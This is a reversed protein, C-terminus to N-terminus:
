IHSNSSGYCGGEIQNYRLVLNVLSKMKKMSISNLPIIKIHEPITKIEKENLLYENKKKFLEKVKNYGAKLLKWLQKHFTIILGVIIFTVAIIIIGQM